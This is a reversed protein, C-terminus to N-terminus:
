CNVHVNRSRKSPSSRLMNILFCIAAGAEPSPDPFSDVISGIIM